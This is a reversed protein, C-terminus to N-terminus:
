AALRDRVGSFRAIWMEVCLYWYLEPLATTLTTPEGSLVEALRRRDVLQRQALAGDLLCERVFDINRTLVTKLHADAAGKTRRTINGKPVEALFARRAMARDWGGLTHLYTPIRLCLELIPQSNLPAVQDPDTSAGLPDYFPQFDHLTSDFIHRYKGPPTNEHRTRWPHRFAHDTGAWSLVDPSLLARHRAMATVWPDTTRVRKRGERIARGLVDWVLHGERRATDLAAQFLGPRLGHRWAFDIAPNMENSIYFVADGWEGSFIATAGFENALSAETRSYEVAYRVYFPHPHRALNHMVDFRVEEIRQREILRIRAQDAAARAFSREDSEFGPSHHTFGIVDPRSPSSGLCSAIISSDLGGSLRLLIGDYCSAWAHTCSRVAERLESAAVAPDEIPDRESIAHPDWYFERGAVGRQLTLCEGAHLPHIDVLGTTGLRENAAATVLAPLRDWAVEMPVGLDALDEACSFFVLLDQVHTYFCPLTASPDRIVRLTGDLNPLFAVYRGWYEQILSRGSSALIRNTAAPCLVDPVVASRERSFLKGVVVGHRGGLLYAGNAKPQAGTWHVSLGDFRATGGDGAYLTDVRRSLTRAREVSSPDDPNSVIALFRFM